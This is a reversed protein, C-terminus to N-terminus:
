GLLTKNQTSGLGGTGTLITGKFGAGQGYSQIKRKTAATTPAAQEAEPLKPPPAPADPTSMCM